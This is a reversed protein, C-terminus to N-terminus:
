LLRQQITAHNAEVADVVSMTFGDYLLRNHARRLRVKFDVKDAELFEKLPNLSSHSVSLAGNKCVVFGRKLGSSTIAEALALPSSKM